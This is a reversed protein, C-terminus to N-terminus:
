RMGIYGTSWGAGQHKHKARRKSRRVLIWFDPGSLDYHRGEFRLGEMVRVGTSRLMKAILVDRWTPLCAKFTEYQKQDLPDQTIEGEPIRLIPAQYRELM